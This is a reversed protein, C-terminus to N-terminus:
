QHNDPRVITFFLTMRTSQQHALSLSASTRPTDVRLSQNSVLKRTKKRLLSYGVSAYSTSSPNCFYRVPYCVIALLVFHLLYCILLKVGYMMDLVAYLTSYHTEGTLSITRGFLLLFDAFDKSLLVKEASQCTSHLRHRKEFQLHRLLTYCLLNSFVVRGSTM